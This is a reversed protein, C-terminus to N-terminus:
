LIGCNKILYFTQWLHKGKEEELLEKNFCYKPLFAESSLFKNFKEITMQICRSRDNKRDIDKIEIIGRGSKDDTFCTINGHAFGNDYADILDNLLSYTRRYYKEESTM